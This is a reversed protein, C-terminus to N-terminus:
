NSLTLKMKGVKPYRCTLYRNQMHTDSVNNDEADKDVWPSFVMPSSSRRRWFFIVMSFPIEHKSSIEISISPLCSPLQSLSSCHCGQCISLPLNAKAEEWSSILIELSSHFYYRLFKINNPFIHIAIIFPILFDCHEFKQWAGPCFFVSNQSTMPFYKFQLHSTQISHLFVSAVSDVYM